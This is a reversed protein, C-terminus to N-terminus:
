LEDALVLLTKRPRAAGGGSTRFPEAKGIEIKQNHEGRGPEAEVRRFLFMPQLPFGSPKRVDSPSAGYEEM